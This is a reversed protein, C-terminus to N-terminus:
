EADGNCFGEAGFGHDQRACAVVPQADAPLEAGVVDNIHATFIRNLCHPADGATGTGVIDDFTGACRIRDTLSRVHEVTAALDTKSGERVFGAEDIDRVDHAVVNIKEANASLSFARGMAGGREHRLPTEVCRFDMRMRKRQLIQRRRDAICFIPDLICDFDHYLGLTCQNLARERGFLTLLQGSRTAYREMTVLIRSGPRSARRCQRWSCSPVMGFILITATSAPRNDSAAMACAASSNQGIRGTTMTTGNAAPPGVSTTPRM